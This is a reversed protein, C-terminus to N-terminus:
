EDRVHAWRTRLHIKSVTQGKVNLSKAISEQTEGAALRRRIERVREPTLKAMGNRVGRNGRGKGDRDEMNVRHEGLFMHDPNCCARVDCKHCVCMGHASDHEPIPGVFAEYALRHAKRMASSEGRVAMPMCVAGYGTSGLAKEWIWCGSWPVIMVRDEIYKRADEVLWSTGAIMRM